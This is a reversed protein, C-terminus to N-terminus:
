QEQIQLMGQDITHRLAKYQSYKNIGTNDTRKTNRAIDHETNTARPCFIIIQKATGKRPKIDQTDNHNLNPIHPLNQHNKQKM